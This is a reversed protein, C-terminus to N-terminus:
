SRTPIDLWTQVPDEPHAIRHMLARALFGGAGGVDEHVTLIERRFRKLFPLAEKSAIDLERGLVLGRDEAASVAAMTAAASALVFGDCGNAGELYPPLAVEVERAPSDSSVGPIDVVECGLRAAARRAGELIHMSYSQAHPPRVLGIRRRGREVLMEVCLEAFVANDFDAYPHVWDSRGHTAFPFDRELLYAIRPDKPQTQNLIIGDASGTEVIYRVPDMPDESPFYPTVIMHYPTGRLEAALSSILRATHNMLDHETSLVLSLVNTKGTRLRVGARNPRYGIRNAIERVRKKTDDGIDPADNLARSITPVALGALRAITKLTPREDSDAVTVAGNRDSDDM